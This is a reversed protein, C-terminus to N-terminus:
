SRKKRALFTFWLDIDFHDQAIHSIDHTLQRAYYHYYGHMFYPHRNIDRRGGLVRVGFLLGEVGLVLLKKQTSTKVVYMFGHSFIYSFSYLIVMNVVFIAVINLLVFNLYTNLNFLYVCSFLLVNCIYFEFLMVNLFFLLM